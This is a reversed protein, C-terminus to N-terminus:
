TASAVRESVVRSSGGPQMTVGYLTDACEMTRKQHSVILLQAEKRFEEVVASALAEEIEAVTESDPEPVLLGDEVQEEPPAEGPRPATAVGSTPQNIDLDDIALPEAPTVPRAPPPELLTGRDSGRRTAVFGAVAGAVLLVAVVLIVIEM